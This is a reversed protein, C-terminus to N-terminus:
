LPPLPSPIPQSTLAFPSICNPPMSAAAGPDSLRTCPCARAGAGAALNRCHHIRRGCPACAHALARLVNQLCRASRGSGAACKTATWKTGKLTPCSAHLSRRDVNRGDPLMDFFLLADGKEPVVALTGNRGCVSLSGRNGSQAAFSMVM